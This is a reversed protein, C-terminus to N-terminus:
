GYATPVGYILSHSDPTFGIIHGNSYPGEAKNDVGVVWPLLGTAPAVTTMGSFAFHQSDPSFGFLSLTGFTTTGQLRGDVYPAWTGAASQGAYAFHQGDPSFSDHFFVNRYGGAIDRGDKYVHHTGDTDFYVEAKHLGDPSILTAKPGGIPSLALRDELLEVSLRGQRPRSARAPRSRSTLKKVSLAM